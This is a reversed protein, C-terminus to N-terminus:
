RSVAATKLDSSFLCTAEVFSFIYEHVSLGVRVRYRTVSRYRWGNPLFRVTQAGPRNGNDGVSRYVKNM